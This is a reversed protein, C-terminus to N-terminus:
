PKWILKPQDRINVIDTQIIGQQHLNEITNLLEDSKISSAKELEKEINKTTTEKTKQRLNRITQYLRKEEPSGYREFIRLNTTKKRQESAYQTTQMALAFVITSVLLIQMTPIGLSVISQAKLPEWHTTIIQGMNLLTQEQKPYDGSDKILIVLSIRTYKLEISPGTRYLNRQYWYLTVQTYNAYATYYYNSPYQFVFFRAMIPPNEMIQVDREDFVDVPTMGLATQGAVLCYEWNHLNSISSGVGVLVFITPNSLNRPFYAYTLSADTRSMKEFNTDRYLFNLICNSVEPFVDTSAEAATNTITLGQAYAFAPAQLSLAVVCAIVLLSSTKIWFRKDPKTQHNESLKGCNPCFEENNESSDNCVNCSATKSGTEYIKLHLLKEAILLLLLIGVSLVLWGSFTHFVTMAIPEGFAYAISVILSIRIINLLPLM